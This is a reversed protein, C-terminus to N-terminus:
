DQNYFQERIIEKITRVSETDLPLLIGGTQLAEKELKRNLYERLQEDKKDAVSKAFKFVSCREEPILCKDGCLCNRCGAFEAALEENTM